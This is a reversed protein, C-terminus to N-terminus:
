RFGKWCFDYTWGLQYHSNRRWTCRGPSLVHHLKRHQHRRSWSWRGQWSVFLCLAISSPTSSCYDATLLATLQSPRQSSQHYRRVTHHLGTIRHHWLRYYWYHLSQLLQIKRCSRYSKLAEAVFWASNHSNMLLLGKMTQYWFAEEGDFWDLCCQSPMKCLLGNLDWCPNLRWVEFLAFWVSSFVLLCCQHVSLHAGFWRTHLNLLLSVM